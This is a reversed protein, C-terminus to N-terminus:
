LLWWFIIDDYLACWARDLSDDFMLISTTNISHRITLTQFHGLFCPTCFNPGGRLIKHDNTTKECIKTSKTCHKCFVTPSRNGEWDGGTNKPERVLITEKLPSSRSEWMRWASTTSSLWYRRQAYVLAVQWLLYLLVQVWERLLLDHM